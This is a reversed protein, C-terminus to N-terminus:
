SGAGPRQQLDDRVNGVQHPELAVAPGPRARGLNIKDVPSVQAGSAQRFMFEAYKLNGEVADLAALAERQGPLEIGQLSFETADLQGLPVSRGARESMILGLLAHNGDSRANRFELALLSLPMRALRQSHWLAIEAHISQLSEGGPFRAQALILADNSWFERQGRVQDAVGQATKMGQMVEREIAQRQARIQATRQAPAITEDAEIAEVRDLMPLVLKELQAIASDSTTRFAKLTQPKLM